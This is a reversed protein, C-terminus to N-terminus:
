RQIDVRVLASDGSLAEHTMARVQHWTPSLLSVLFPYAKSQNVVHAAVVQGQGSTLQDTRAILYLRTTRFSGGAPKSGQEKRHAATAKKQVRGPSQATNASKCLPM